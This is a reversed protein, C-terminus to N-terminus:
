TSQNIAKQAKQDTKELAIHLANHNADIKEQLTDIRKSLEEFNTTNILVKIKDVM